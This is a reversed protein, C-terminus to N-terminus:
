ITYWSWFEIESSTHHTFLRSIDFRFEIKDGIFLDIM